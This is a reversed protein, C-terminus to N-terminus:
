KLHILHEQLKQRAYHLRSGVTGMPVETIRAIQELSMGRVEHMLFAERQDSPLWNQIADFIQKYARMGDLAQDVNDTTAVEELDDVETHNPPDYRLERMRRIQRLRDLIANTNITYIWGEITEELADSFNTCIRTFTEWTVEEADEHNGLLRFARSHMADHYENIIGKFANTDGSNVARVVAVNRDHKNAM